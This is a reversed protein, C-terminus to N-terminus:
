YQKKNNEFDEYKKLSDEECKKLSDKWEEKFEKLLPLGFGKNKLGIYFKELGKKEIYSLSSFIIGGKPGDEFVELHKEKRRTCFITFNSNGIKFEFSPIKGKM